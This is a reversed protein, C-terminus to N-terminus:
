AYIEVYSNEEKYKDKDYACTLDGKKKVRLFWIKM